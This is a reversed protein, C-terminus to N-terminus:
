MRPYGTVAWLYFLGSNGAEGIRSLYHVVPADVLRAFVSGFAGTHHLLEELRIERFATVDGSSLVRVDYTM